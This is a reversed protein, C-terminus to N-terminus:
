KDILDFFISIEFEANNFPLMQPIQIYLEEDGLIEQFGYRYMDNLYTFSNNNTVFKGFIRDITNFESNFGSGVFIEVGSQSFNNLINIDVRQILMIKNKLNECKLDSDLLKIRFEEVPFRYETGIDDFFETSYKYYKEFKYQGGNAKGRSDRIYTDSSRNGNYFINLSRGSLNTDNFDIKIRKEGPKTKLEKFYVIRN